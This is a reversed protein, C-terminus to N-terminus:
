DEEKRINLLKLKLVLKKYINFEEETLTRFTSSSSIYDIIISWEQENHKFKSYFSLEDKVKKESGRFRRTLLYIFHMSSRKKDIENVDIETLTFLHQSTLKGEHNYQCMTIPKGIYTKLEDKPIDKNFIYKHIKANM